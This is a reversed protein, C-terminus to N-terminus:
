EFAVELVYELVQEFTGFRQYRYGQQKCTLEIDIGYEKHHLRIIDGEKKGRFVHEPIHSPFYGLMRNKRSEDDEDFVVNAENQFGGFHGWNEEKESTVWIDIMLDDHKEPEIGFFDLQGLLWMKSHPEYRSLKEAKNPIIFINGKVVENKKVTANM